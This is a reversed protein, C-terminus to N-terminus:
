RLTMLWEVIAGRDENSLPGVAPMTARPHDFRPEEIHHGFWARVRDAGEVALLSEYRHRQDVRFAQESAIWEQLQAEYAPAHVLRSRKTAVRRLDPGERPPGPGVNHCGACKQLFLVRGREVPTLGALDDLPPADLSAESPVVRWIGGQDVAGEGRRNDTIEGFFDTFYLGDPGEILGLVTPMADGAYQLVVEPASVLLGTAPDIQLEHIAKAQTPGLVAYNGFMAVYARGRTGAGLADASLLEVGAPVPNLPPGWTYLANTRISDWTGNWGYGIGGRLEVFRDINPGNDAAYLAGSDPHFDMGFINRVGYSWVYSRPGTPDEPDYFPNDTCASGDLELRLVKGAFADVDLPLHHNDADGVAVYLKDDPGIEIAHIQHIVSTFEKLDLLVVAEDTTRGGPEAVLRLIHNSLLGSEQDLYSGTVILDESGPVTILGSLGTEDSRERKLPDFNNLGTAFTHLRGTRTIWHVDGYLENVYLWPAEPDPDPQQAFALNMPYTLGVVVKEVDLGPRVKWVPSTPAAVGEWDSRRADDGEGFAARNEPVTRQGLQAGIRSVAARGTIDYLVAITALGGVAVGVVVWVLTIPWSRRTPNSM